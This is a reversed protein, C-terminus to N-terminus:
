AKERQRQRPIILQMIHYNHGCISMDDSKYWLVSNLNTYKNNSHFLLNMDKRDVNSYLLKIHLSMNLFEAFFHEIKSYM